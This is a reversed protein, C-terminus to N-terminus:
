CFIYGVCVEQEQPPDEQKFARQQSADGPTPHAVPADPRAQNVNGCPYSLLKGKKRDAKTKARKAEVIHHVCTLKSTVEEKM